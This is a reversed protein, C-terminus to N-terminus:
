CIPAGAPSAEARVSLSYPVGSRLSWNGAAQSDDALQIGLTVSHELILNRIRKAFAESLEATHSACIIQHDPFHALYWAPFMVTAYSSKASGPPAAILLRHLEGAAVKELHEIIYRHHRAPEFGCARAFEVLSARIRQRRLLEEAAQKRDAM